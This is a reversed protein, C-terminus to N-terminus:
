LIGYVNNSGQPGNLVGGLSLCAQNAAQNSQPCRCIFKGKFLGSTQPTYFYSLSLSGDALKGYVYGDVDLGYSNGNQMILLGNEKFNAGGDDTLREYPLEIDLDLWSTPYSGNALYYVEGAQVATQINSYLESARSKYVATQYQPLAVASLIGIILVVVLLEILTFGSHFRTKLKGPYLAFTKKKM